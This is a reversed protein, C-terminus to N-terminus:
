LNNGLLFGHVFGELCYENGMRLKVKKNLHVTYYTCDYDDSVADVEFGYPTLVKRAGDLIKQEHYKLM